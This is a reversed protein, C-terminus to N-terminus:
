LILHHENVYQSLQNNSDMHMKNLISSRVNNITRVSLAQELAIEVVSKKLAIECMVQFEQDTLNDHPYNMIIKQPNGTNGTYLKGDSIIKIAEVIKEPAHDKQLYGNAGARLMRKAYHDEPHMSLILVPLDPKDERINKLVELGNKGPMSIDLVVFDIKKFKILKLAEDGNSAEYVVDLNPIEGIIRKLGERVVAHDDVILLKLIKGAGKNIIKFDPKPKTAIGMMKNITIHKWKLTQYLLINPLIQPILLFRFVM